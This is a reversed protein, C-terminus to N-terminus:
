KPFGFRGHFPPNDDDKKPKKRPTKNTPRPPQPTEDEDGSDGDDGEDDEGDPMEQGWGDFLPMNFMINLFVEPPMTFSATVQPTPPIPPIPNSQNTPSPRNLQEESKQQLINKFFNDLMDDTLVPAPPVKKQAVKPTVSEQSKPKDVDFSILEQVYKEIMDPSPTNSIVIFDEPIECEIQTTFELWDRFVCMNKRVVGTNPDLLTSRQLQLPRHLLVFGKKTGNKKGIIEDGSRLKLILYQSQEKTM